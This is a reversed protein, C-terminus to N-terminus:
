RKWMPKQLELKMYETKAKECLVCQYYGYDCDGYNRCEECVNCHIDTAIDEMCYEDPKNLEIFKQRLQICKSCLNNRYMEGDYCGSEELYKEGYLIKQNCICCKHEKRAKRLVSSQFNGM